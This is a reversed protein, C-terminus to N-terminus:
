IKGKLKRFEFVVKGLAVMCEHYVNQKSTKFHRGIVDFTENPELHASARIGLQHYTSWCPRWEAIPKIGRRASRHRFAAAEGKKM